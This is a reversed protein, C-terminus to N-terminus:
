TCLVGPVACQAVRMGGLRELVIRRLSGPKQLLFIQKCISTNSPSLSCTITLCAALNPGLGTLLYGATHAAKAEVVEVGVTRAHVIKSKGSPKRRM